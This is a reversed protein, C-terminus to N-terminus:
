TRLQFQENETLNKHPNSIHSWMFPIPWYKKRHSNQPIIQHTNANIRQQFAPFNKFSFWIAYLNKTRTQKKTPFKKNLKKKKNVSWIKNEEQDVRQSNRMGFRRGAQQRWSSTGVGWGV